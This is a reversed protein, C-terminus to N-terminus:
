NLTKPVGDEENKIEKLLSSLTMKVNDKSDCVEGEITKEVNEINRFKEHLKMLNETAANLNKAISAVAEIARPSPATMAEVTATDMVASSRIISRIIKERAVVYDAAIDHATGNSTVKVEELVIETVDEADGFVEDIDKM